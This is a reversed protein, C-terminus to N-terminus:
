PSTGTRMRTCRAPVSLYDYATEALTKYKGNIPVGWFTQPATLVQELFPRFRPDQVLDNERGDKNRDDAGYQWMWEVEERQSKDNKPKAYSPPLTTALLAATALQLLRRM